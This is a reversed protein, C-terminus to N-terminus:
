SLSLSSVGLVTNAAAVMRVRDVGLARTAALVTAGTTVVDDVLVVEPADFHRVGFATVARGHDGGARRMAHWPPSLARTLPAGTRRSLALALIEAQDVGYRLRRSWARPIPALPLDPLRDALMEAVVDAYGVVGRYKLLHVLRRAAGEHAFSAVVRVGGPLLRDPAPVLSRVCVDCLSGRTARHCALCIM